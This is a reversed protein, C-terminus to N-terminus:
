LCFNNLIRLSGSNFGIITLKSQLSSAVILTAFLKPSLILVIIRTPIEEFVSLFCRFIIM